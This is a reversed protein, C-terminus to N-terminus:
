PYMSYSAPLWYSLLLSYMLKFYKILLKFFILFSFLPVYFMYALYFCINICAFTKVKLGNNDIKHYLACWQQISCLGFALCSVTEPAMHCIKGCTYWKTQCHNIYNVSIPVLDNLKKKICYKILALILLVGFFLILGGATNAEIMSASNPHLWSVM